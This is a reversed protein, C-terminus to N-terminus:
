VVVARGDLRFVGIAVTLERAQSNLSTTAASTQEALAANQQTLEDLQLVASRVQDIADAQEETASAISSVQDAVQRTQGVIQLMTKGAVEVRKHGVEIQEVTSIILAKIEKAAMASQHALERVENAVVAFGRGHSGAQAAEVAANLALLNTRFAINEIVAIIERIQSSARHIQDMTVIVESVLTGGVAAVDSSTTALTTAFKATGANNQVLAALQQVASATAQLRSAQWETRVSLDHNGKTIEATGTDISLASTRIHSVTSTLTGVMRRLAALLRTTEDSGTSPPVAALEGRSVTEAVQVAQDLRDRVTVITRVAFLSSACMIVLSAIVIFLLASNVREDVAQVVSNQRETITKVQRTGSDARTAAVGKLESMAAATNAQSSLLSLKSALVREGSDKVSEMAKLATDLQQALASRGMKTMGGRMLLVNSSLRETLERFGAHVTQAEDPSSSLMLLRLAAVMERIDMSVIQSVSIVGGPENRVKLAAELNQRQKFAQLELEETATALKQSQQDLTDVIRTRQRAYAANADAKGGLVAARLALLGSNEKAFMEMMANSAAKVALLTTAVEAESELQQVASIAAQVEARTTALRATNTIAGVDSVLVAIAKLRSEASLTQKMANALRRNAEQATDATRIAEKELGNVSQRVSAIVQEAQQLAAGALETQSRYGQEDSLRKEVTRAITATASEFDAVDSASEPDLSRIDIQLRKIAEIEDRAGAAVRRAEGPNQVLTLKLLLGVLRETRELTEHTKNQLPTARATLGLLDSQISTVAFYSVSAIAILGLASFIASGMLRHSIKM